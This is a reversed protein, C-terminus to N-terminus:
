KKAKEIPILKEVAEIPDKSKYCIFDKEILKEKTLSNLIRQVKTEKLATANAVEEALMERHKLISSLVLAHYYDFKPKTKRSAAKICALEIINM